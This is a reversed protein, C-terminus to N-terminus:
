CLASDEVLEETGMQNMKGGEREPESSLRYLHAGVPQLDNAAKRCRFEASQIFHNSPKEGKVWVQVPSESHLVLSSVM